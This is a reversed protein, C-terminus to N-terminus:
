IAKGEILALLRDITKGQHEILQDIRRGQAEILANLQDSEKSDKAIFYEGLRKLGMILVAITASWQVLPDPSAISDARPIDPNPTVTQMILNAM